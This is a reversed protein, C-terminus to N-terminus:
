TRYSGPVHSGPRLKYLRPRVGDKESPAPQRLVRAAGPRRNSVGPPLITRVIRRSHIRYIRFHRDVTIVAPDDALEAMRVLSADALPMSPM